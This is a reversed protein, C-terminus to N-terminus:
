LVPAELEGPNSATPDSERLGESKRGKGILDLIATAGADSDLISAAGEKVRQGERAEAEEIDEQINSVRWVEMDTYRFQPEKSLTPSHYTTSLPKAMSHGQGYECDLWLAFYNIQGGMGLGNPFTEQGTNLYFYNENIGTTRYIKQLPAVSFLFNDVSGQFAANNNWPATSFGGFVNGDTDRVVLVTNKQGRVRRLLTTFSEGHKRSDFLLTWKERLKYPIAQNIALIRMPTLLSLHECGASKDVFLPLLSKQPEDSIPFAYKFVAGYAQTFLQSYGLWRVVEQTSYVCEPIKNASVAEKESKKDPYFLDTLSLFTLLQFEYDSPQDLKNWVKSVDAHRVHLLISYFTRLLSETFQYLQKASPTHNSSSLGRVMEEQQYPDTSLLKAIVAYFTTENVASPDQQQSSGVHVMVRFVRSVIDSPFLKGLHKKLAIETM